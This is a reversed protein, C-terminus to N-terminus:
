TVFIRLIICVDQRNLRVPKTVDNNNYFRNTGLKMFAMQTNENIRFIKTAIESM